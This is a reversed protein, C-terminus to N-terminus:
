WPTWSLPGTRASRDERRYACLANKRSSDVERRLAAIESAQESLAVVMGSLRSRINDPEAFGNPMGTVSNVTMAHQVEALTNRESWLNSLELVLEGKPGALLSSM